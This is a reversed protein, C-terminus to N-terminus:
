VPLWGGKYKEGSAKTGVFPEQLFYRVAKDNSLHWYSLHFPGNHPRFDSPGCATWYAMNDVSFDLCLGSDKAINFTKVVM